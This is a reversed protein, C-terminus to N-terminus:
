APVDGRNRAVVELYAEQLRERVTLRSGKTPSVIGLHEERLDDMFEEWLEPGGEEMLRARISLEETVPLWHRGWAGLHAMIPVLTIAKETLSYIAKQKHSPDGAKTLMGIEVLMRMRDALINSSIGEESRLLERFHRKGGFIMDRLILLSWKDGFVELSLNIPCGSRHTENM